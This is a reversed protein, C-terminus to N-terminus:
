ELQQINLTWWWSLTWQDAFWHLEVTIIRRFLLYKKEWDLFFHLGEFLNGHENTLQIARRDSPADRFRLHWLLLTNEVCVQQYELNCINKKNLLHAEFVHADLHFLLRRNRAVEGTSHHFSPLYIHHANSTSNWMMGKSCLSFFLAIHSLEVCKFRCQIYAPTLPIRFSKHFDFIAGQIENRSLHNREYIM